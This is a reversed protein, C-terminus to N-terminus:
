LLSTENREKELADYAAILWKTEEEHHTLLLKFREEWTKSPDDVFRKIKVKM